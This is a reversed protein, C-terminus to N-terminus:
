SLDFAVSMRLGPRGLPVTWHTFFSPMLVLVGAEPRIAVEPWGACTEGLRAPCGIRLEGGAPEEPVGVPYYIGTAWGRHHIHRVNYGYGRSILGWVRMDFRDPILHSLPHDRRRWDELYSAVEGRFADVLGAVTPHELLHLRSIKTMERVSDVSAQYTGGAEEELLLDAIAAPDLDLRVQRLLAGPSLIAAVEDTEGLSSLLVLYEWIMRSNATGAGILAKYEGAAERPPKGLGAAALTLDAGERLALSRLAAAEATRGAQELFLLHMGVPAQPLGEKRLAEGYLALGASDGDMLLRLAHAVAAQASDSAEAERM